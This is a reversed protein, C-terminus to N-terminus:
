DDKSSSSWNLKNTTIKTKNGVNEQVIFMIHTLFPETETCGVSEQRKQENSFRGVWSDICATLVISTEYKKLDM